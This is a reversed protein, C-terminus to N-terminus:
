GNRYGHRSDRLGRVPHHWAVALGGARERLVHARLVVQDWARVLSLRHLGPWAGFDDDYVDFGQAWGYRSHLPFGSVFAATRYGRAQLLRSILAPQDGINTGNTVIGSRHPPRGSRIDM